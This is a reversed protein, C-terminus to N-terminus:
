VFAPGTVGLNSGTGCTPGRDNLHDVTEFHLKAKGEAEPEM